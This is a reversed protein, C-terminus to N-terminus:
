QFRLKMIATISNHVYDENNAEDNEQDLEIKNEGDLNNDTQITINKM